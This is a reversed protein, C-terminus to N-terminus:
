CAAGSSGSSCASLTERAPPAAEAATREDHAAGTWAQDRAPDTGPPGRRPGARRRACRRSRAAAVAEDGAQGARRAAVGSGGALSGRTSRRSALLLM